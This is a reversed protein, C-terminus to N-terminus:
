VAIDPRKAMDEIAHRVAAADALDLAVGGADSKHLIEPSVVKAVLPAKLAAAKAAADQADRGFVHRPVPIGFCALLRKAELENLARRRSALARAVIAEASVIAKAVSSM